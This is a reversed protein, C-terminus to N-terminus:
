ESVLETRADDQVTVAVYWKANQLNNTRMGADRLEKIRATQAPTPPVSMDVRTISKDALLRKLWKAVTRPDLGMDDAIETGYFMAKGRVFRLIRDGTTPQVDKVLSSETFWNNGEM